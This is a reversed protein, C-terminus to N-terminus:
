MSQRSRRRRGGCGTGHVPRGSLSANREGQAVASAPDPERHRGAFGWAFGRSASSSRPGGPDAFTGSVTANISRKWLGGSGLGTQSRASSGRDPLHERARDRRARSSSYQEDDDVLIV